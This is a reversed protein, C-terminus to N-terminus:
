TGTLQARGLGADLDTERKNPYYKRKFALQYFITAHIGAVSKKELRRTWIRRFIADLAPWDDREVLEEIFAIDQGLEPFIQSFEEDTAGFIDYACNDAGDIIQINKM